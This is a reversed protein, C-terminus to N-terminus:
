RPRTTEKFLRQLAIKAYKEVSDIYIWRRDLIESVKATTGSGGFIDLVIDGKNSWSLVHDKALKEPFIAPHLYAIQDRTSFNKGNSYKWINTRVGFENITKKGKNTLSGDKERRTVDAFTQKNAWKNKKDKIINVTKINGKTLIFMYEFTNFYRNRHPPASGSKEYIVVDFMKFGIQQFYLAQKFSTLTKGKNQVKDGVVWVVTAGPKMIRHIEKAITKFKKMNWATKSDYDRLDDYPPSTVILDISNEPFNKLVLASDGVIIKNVFEAINSFGRLDKYRTIDM